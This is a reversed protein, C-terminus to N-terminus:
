VSAAWQSGEAEGLTELACDLSVLSITMTKGIAPLFVFGTAVCKPCHCPLHDKSRVIPLTASQVVSGSVSDAHIM